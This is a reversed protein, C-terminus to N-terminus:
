SALLASIEHTSGRDGLNLQVQVSHATIGGCFGHQDDGMEVNSNEISQALGGPRQHEAKVQQCNPCKEVFVAVDKKMNNWWYVEKLDHCMKMSGPHVSYRSNHAEAMIREQLGDIDPVYLRGQYGGENSDALRVGLSALQHVERALSRQYAELHALCGMYKQSLANVVVNAKGSHYLIDIDYYKLLELCRRQRLNLEKQKFIYQLSKHDM